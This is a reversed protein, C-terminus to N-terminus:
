DHDSHYGDKEEGEYTIEMIKETTGSVKCSSSIRGGIIWVIDSGDAAVLCNGRQSRGTKSDIFYRNLKKRHGADDIVIGDGPMPTRIRLNQKIKDYDFTKTYEKRSVTQGAYPFVSVTVTGRGDPLRYVGPGTIEVGQWANRADPAREGAREFRLRDYERVATIGYPLHIQKGTGGACLKRVQEVHVAAIDKKGGCARAIAEKIIEGQLFPEQAGLEAVTWDGELFEGVRLRVADSCARLLAATQAMHSIAERNIAEMEPLIRHRIRNRTYDPAENSTDTCYKLKNVNLYNWVMEKTILLMPRLITGYPTGTVPAMGSLGSLGTGRCLHFLMTEAQDNAQHATAIKGTGWERAVEGMKEYRYIRGAEEVTRKGEKALQRVDARFLFFPVGAEGCLREAFRADRDAEEGRLGHHAHVAALEFAKEERYRTLIHFLCVSDSGGSLGLVIRDGEEIM